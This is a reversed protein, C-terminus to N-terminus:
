WLLCWWLYLCWKFFFKKVKLVMMYQARRQIDYRALWPLLPTAFGLGLHCFDAWRVVVDDDDDLTYLTMKFCLFVYVYLIYVKWWFTMMPYYEKLVDYYWWWCWFMYKKYREWIKIKSPSARNLYRTSAM